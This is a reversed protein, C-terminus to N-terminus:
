LRRGQFAELDAIPGRGILFLTPEKALHVIITEVWCFVSLFLIVLVFLVLKCTREM